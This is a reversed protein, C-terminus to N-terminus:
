IPLLSSSSFFFIGEILYQHFIWIDLFFWHPLSTYFTWWNVRFGPHNFKCELGLTCFRKIKILIDLIYCCLYSATCSHYLSFLCASTVWSVILNIQLWSLLCHAPIPVVTQVPILGSSQHCRWLNIQEGAVCQQTFVIGGDPHKLQLYWSTWAKMLDRCFFFSNM